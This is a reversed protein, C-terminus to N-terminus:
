RQQTVRFLRKGLGIFSILPYLATFAVTIWSTWGPAGEPPRPIDSPHIVMLMAMLAYGVLLMGLVAVGALRTRPRPAVPLRRNADLAITMFGSTSGLLVMIVLPNDM